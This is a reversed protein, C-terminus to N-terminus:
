KNGSTDVHKYHKRTLPILGFAVARNLAKTVQHQNKPTLKTRARPLVQGIDNVFRSLMDVNKYEKRLDIQFREIIDAGQLPGSHPTQLRPANRDGMDALDSPVYSEGIEFSKRWRYTGSRIMQQESTKSMASALAQNRDDESQRATKAEFEKLFTDLGTSTNIDAAVAASSTAAVPSSSFHRFARSIRLMSYM